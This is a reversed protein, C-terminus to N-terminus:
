RQEVAATALLSLLNFLYDTSSLSVDYIIEINKFVVFLYIM